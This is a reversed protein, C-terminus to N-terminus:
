DRPSLRFLRDRLRPAPTSTGRAPEAPAPHRAYHAAAIVSSMLEADLAAPVALQNAAAYSQLLSKTVRLGAGPRRGLPTTWARVAEDLRDHPVVRHLVSLSEAEEAAFTRGTLILERARSPGVEALFRPLVGGWAVPLGLAIEPLRFRTDEAGVRLDCSLALAVGAGTVRGQIRAVTVAHSGALAECVRRGKEACRRIGSGTPDDGLMEGFEERDGGMCFDDGAASLVLVKIEPLDPLATLVTLLDDLLTESAVNGNDPTDLRVNLVPGEQTVALTAFKAFVPEQGDNEPRDTPHPAPM